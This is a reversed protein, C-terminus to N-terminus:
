GVGGMRGGLEGISDGKSQGLYVLEWGVEGVGGM